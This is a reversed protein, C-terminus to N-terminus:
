MAAVDRLGAAVLRRDTRLSAAFDDLRLTKRKPRAQAVAEACKTTLHALFLEAAHSVILLAEQSIRQAEPDLLIIQSLVLVAALVLLRLWLFLLLPHPLM